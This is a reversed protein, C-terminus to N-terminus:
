ASGASSRIRKLPWGAIPRATDSRLPPSMMSSPRMSSDSISRRFASRGTPMSTWLSDSWGVTTFSEIRSNMLVSASATIMTSATLKMESPMRVPMTTASDIGSTSATVNRQMYMKPMSRWRMESPASIMASPRSTSSAIMATSIIAMLISCPQSRMRAPM